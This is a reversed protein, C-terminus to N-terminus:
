ENFLENFDVKGLKEELVGPVLDDEGDLILVKYNDDKIFIVVLKENVKIIIGTLELYKFEGVLQIGDDCILENDEINVDYNDESFLVEILEEKELDYLDNISIDQGNLVELINTIIADVCFDTHLMCRQILMMLMDFDGQNKIKLFEYEGIISILENFIYLNEIGEKEKESMDFYKRLLNKMFKKVEM